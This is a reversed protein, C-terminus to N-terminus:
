RENSLVARLQRRIQLLIPEGQWKDEPACYDLYAQIAARLREIEADKKDLEGLYYERLDDMADEREKADLALEGGDSM